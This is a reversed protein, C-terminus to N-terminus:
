KVNTTAPRESDAPRANSMTPTGIEHQHQGEADHVEDDGHNSEGEAHGEDDSRHEHNAMM